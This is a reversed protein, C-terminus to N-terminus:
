APRTWWSWTRTSRPAAGKAKLGLIRAPAASLREVLAGPSSGARWLELLRWSVGPRHDQLARRLRGAGEQRSHPAHDTAM